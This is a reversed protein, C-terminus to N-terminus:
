NSLRTQSKTVSHVTARWTGRDTPISWALISSHTTMEKELLEEWSLSLVWTERMTPPNKVMQAVLSARYLEHPATLVADYAPTGQSTASGPSPVARWRANASQTVSPFM